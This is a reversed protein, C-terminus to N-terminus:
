TKESSSKTRYLSFVAVLLLGVSVTREGLNLITFLNGMTMEGRDVLTFPFFGVSHHNMVGDIAIREYRDILRSIIPWIVVAIGLWIFGGDRTRLYKVTVAVALAFHLAFVFIFFSYFFM